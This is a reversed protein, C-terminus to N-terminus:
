TAAPVKKGLYRTVTDLLMPAHWDIGLKEAKELLTPTSLKKRLAHYIFGLPVARQGVRCHLYVPQKADALATCVEDIQKDKLNSLSMPLHIYTMGHENVLKGEEEPTLAQGLEGKKSLNIVTKYGSDALSEIKEDSPQIGITLRRSIKLPADLM